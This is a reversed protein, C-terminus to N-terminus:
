YYYGGCHAVKYPLFRVAPYGTAESGGPPPARGAAAWPSSGAVVGGAWGCSFLVGL